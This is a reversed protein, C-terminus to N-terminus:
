GTHLKRHKHECPAIMRKFGTLSRVQPFYFGSVWFVTPIGIEVWKNIFALRDMLDTAWAALPKMSPYAKAEWAKPV